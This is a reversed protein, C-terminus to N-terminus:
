KVSDLDRGDAKRYRIVSSWRGNIAPLRGFYRAEFAWAALSLRQKLTNGFHM